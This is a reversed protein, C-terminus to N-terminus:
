KRSWDSYLGNTGRNRVKFFERPQDRPLTVRNTGAINTKLTWTTLNTSSWVETIISGPADNTNDWILTVTRPPPPAVTLTQDAIYLLGGLSGLLVVFSIGLDRLPSDKPAPQPTDAL